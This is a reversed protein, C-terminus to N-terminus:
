DMDDKLNAMLVYELLLMLAANLAIMLTLAFNRQDFLVGINLYAAVQLAILATKPKARGYFYAAVQYVGITVGALALMEPAFAWLTPNDANTKYAFVMWFLYFFPLIVAATRSSAQVTGDPKALFFPFCLGGFIGCAGFIRQMMPFRSADATFMVVLAAIVFVLAFAWLLLGPVRGESRLAASAEKEARFRRLGLLTAAIILAVVFVSYVVLIISLAAGRAALGSVEDFINRTQLWRFFAGFVGLVLTALTMVMANKRM